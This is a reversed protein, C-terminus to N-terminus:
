RMLLRVRPFYINLVNIYSYNHDQALLLHTMLYHILLSHSLILILNLHYYNLLHHHIPMIQPFLSVYLMLTYLNLLYYSVHHHHLPMLLHMLTSLTMLINIILFYYNVHHPHYNNPQPM